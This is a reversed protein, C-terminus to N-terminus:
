DLDDLDVKALFEKHKQGMTLVIYNKEHIWWLKTTHVM